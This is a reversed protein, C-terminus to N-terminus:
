WPEVWDEAEYYNSDQGQEETRRPYVLATPEPRGLMRQLMQLMQMQLLMQFMQPDAGLEGASPNGGTVQWHANPGAAWHRAQATRIKFFIYAVAALVVLLLVLVAIVSLGTTAITQGASSIQAARAIEVAAQAQLSQARNGEFASVGWVIAAVLALVAFIGIIIQM